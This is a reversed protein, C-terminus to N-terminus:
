SHTVAINDQVQQVGPTNWVSQKILDKELWSNVEGKLNVHNGEVAIQINHTNVNSIRKLAAEIDTKLANFQFKPKIAIKNTIGKVGLLKRLATEASHRQYEWNVEGTLTLWGNEVMIKVAESPVDTTWRLVNDASLAIDSDHRKHISPINVDMQVALAKVGAVKLAAREASWKETYSDVHGLLTVIGNKVEVGINAANVAPEWRLEAMVDQQLQTDSKSSM